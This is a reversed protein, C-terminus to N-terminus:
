SSQGELRFSEARSGKLLVFASSVLEVGTGEEFECSVKENMKVGSSGRKTVDCLKNAQSMVGDDMM